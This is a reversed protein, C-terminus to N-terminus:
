HIKLNSLRSPSSIPLTRSNDSTQWHDQSTHFSDIRSLSSDASPSTVLVIKNRQETNPSYERHINQLTKNLVWRWFQITEHSIKTQCNDKVISRLCIIYTFLIVLRITMFWYQKNDLVWWHRKQVALRSLVLSAVSQFIYTTYLKWLANSKM